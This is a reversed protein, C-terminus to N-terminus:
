KKGKGITKKRRPKKEGKKKKGANELTQGRKLRSNELINEEEFQNKKGGERL